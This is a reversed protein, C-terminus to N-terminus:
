VFTVRDGGSQWIVNSGEFTIQLSPGGGGRREIPSVAELLQLNSRIIREFQCNNSPKCVHFIEKWAYVIPVCYPLKLLFLFFDYFKRINGSLVIWAGESLILKRQEFLENLNKYAFKITYIKQWNCKVLKGFCTLM